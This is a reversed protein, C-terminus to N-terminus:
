FGDCTYTTYAKSVLKIILPSSVLFISAQMSYCDYKDWDSANLFLKLNPCIIELFFIKKFKCQM